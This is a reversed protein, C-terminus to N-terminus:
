SILGYEKTEPEVYRNKIRAEKWKEENHPNMMERIVYCKKM